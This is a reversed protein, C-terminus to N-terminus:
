GGFANVFTSSFLPTVILKMFCVFCVPWWVEVDRVTRCRM